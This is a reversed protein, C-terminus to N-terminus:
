SMEKLSIKIQSVCAAALQAFVIIYLLARITFVSTADVLLPPLYESFHSKM